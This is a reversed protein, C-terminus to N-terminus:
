RSPSIQPYPYYPSPSPKTLITMSTICARFVNNRKRLAEIKQLDEIDPKEKTRNNSIKSRVPHSLNLLPIQMGEIDALIKERDAEEYDLGTIRTLFDIRVPVRPMCFVEPKNFDISRVYDVSEKEFGSKVLM